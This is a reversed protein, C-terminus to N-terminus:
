VLYETAYSKKWEGRGKRLIRHFTLIIITNQDYFFEM